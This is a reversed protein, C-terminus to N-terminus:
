LLDEHASNAAVAGEACATVIQKLGGTVDGAAYIKQLNTRQKKDVIIYGKEDTKVGISKALVSNPKEGISVFVGDISMENISNDKVNRIKVGKVISDGFIEEVVSDWIVNIKKEFVYDQLIKDARLKDRRHILYVDSGINKLHMAEIAAANGGGVVVTKKNRFFMGDCTACYSVGKGLFEKEGKVGLKRKETGSAFVLAKSKYIKKTTVIEIEKDVIIKEIKEMEHIECYKEAQSKMKQMLEMGSISKYGPYNEVAPIVNVIGGAIKEDFVVANLGFRGAYIGSSLGAPGAGIVALDM